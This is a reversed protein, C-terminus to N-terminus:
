TSLDEIQSIDYAIYGCIECTWCTDEFNLKGKCEHWEYKKMSIGGRDHLEQIGTILLRGDHLVQAKLAIPVTDSYIGLIEWRGENKEQHAGHKKEIPHWKEYLQILEWDGEHEDAKCATEMVEIVDDFIYLSTALQDVLNKSILVHSKDKAKLLNLIHNEDFGLLPLNVQKIALDEAKQFLKERLLDLL